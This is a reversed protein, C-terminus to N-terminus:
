TDLDGPDLGSIEYNIGFATKQPPFKTISQLLPSIQPTAARGVPQFRGLQIRFHNKETHLRSPGKAFRM